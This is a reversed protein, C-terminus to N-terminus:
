SPGPPGVFVRGVLARSALAWPPGCSGLSAWLPGAWVPGARLPGPHGCRGLPAWLPRFPVRFSGTAWLPGAPGVAWPIDLTYLILVVKEEGLPSASVSM